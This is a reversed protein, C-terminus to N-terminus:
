QNFIMKPWNTLLGRDHAALIIRENGYNLVGRKLWEYIGKWFTSVENEPLPTKVEIKDVDLSDFLKKPDRKFFKNHIKTM